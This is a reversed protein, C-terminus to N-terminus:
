GALCQGSVGIGRLKGRDSNRKWHNRLSKAKCVRGLATVTDLRSLYIACRGKASAHNQRAQRPVISNFRQLPGLIPTSDNSKAPRSRARPKWALSDFRSALMDASEPRLKSACRIRDVL